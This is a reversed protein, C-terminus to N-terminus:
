GGESVNRATRGAVRLAGEVTAAARQEDRLERSVVLARAEEAAREARRRDVDHGRVVQLAERALLLGVARRVVASRTEAGYHHRCLVELDELAGRELLVVVRVLEGRRAHEETVRRPVGTPM